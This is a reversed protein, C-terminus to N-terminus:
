GLRDLHGRYLAVEERNRAIQKQLSQPFLLAVDREDVVEVIRVDAGVHSGLLFFLQIEHQGFELRQRFGAPGRQEHVGHVSHRVFLNRSYQINRERCHFYLNVPSTERQSPYSICLVRTHIRNVSTSFSRLAPLSKLDAALRDQPRPWDRWAHASRLICPAPGPILAACVGATPRCGPCSRARRAEVRDQIAIAGGCARAARSASTAGQTLSIKRRRTKSYHTRM